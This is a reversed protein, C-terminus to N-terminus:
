AMVNCMISMIITNNVYKNENNNNNAMISMISM